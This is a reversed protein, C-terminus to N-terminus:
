LNLKLMPRTFCWGIMGRFWLELSIRERVIDMEGESWCSLSRRLAIAKFANFSRHFARLASGDFDCSGFDKGCCFAAAPPFCGSFWPWEPKLWWPWLWSRLTIGFNLMSSIIFGIGNGAGGPMIGSSGGDVDPVFSGDEEFMSQYFIWNLYKEGVAWLAGEIFFKKIKKIISLKLWKQRHLTKTIDNNYIFYFHFFKVRSINIITRSHEATFWGGVFSLWKPMIAQKEENM